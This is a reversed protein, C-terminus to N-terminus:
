VCRGGRNSFAPTLMTMVGHGRALGGHVGDQVLRVTRERCMGFQIGSRMALMGAASSM